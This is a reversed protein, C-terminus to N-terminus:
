GAAILDLRPTAYAREREVFDLAARAPPPLPPLDPDYKIAGLADDTTPSAGPIKVGRNLIGSPDFLTKVEAFCSIADDSWVRPMLPTRLRGDGHEGALTGELSAVLGTVDDLIAAVDARWGARRVDILPNVHVNADGAHGFIV